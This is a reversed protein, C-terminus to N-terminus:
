HYHLSLILFIVKPNSLLEKILIDQYFFDFGTSLGLLEKKFFGKVCSKCIGHEIVSIDNYISM